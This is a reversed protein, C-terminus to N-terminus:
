PIGARRLVQAAVGEGERILGALLQEAGVEDSGTRIADRHALELTRRARATLPRMAVGAYGTGVIEEVQERVDALSTGRERLIKAAANEGGAILPHLLHETGIYNHRLLRAEKGAGTIAEVADDTHRLVTRRISVVPLWRRAPDSM